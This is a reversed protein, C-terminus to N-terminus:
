SVYLSIQRVKEIYVASAASVALQDRVVEIWLRTVVLFQTVFKRVRKVKRNPFLETSTAQKFCIQSQRCRYRQPLIALWNYISSGWEEATYKSQPSSPPALVLQHPWRTDWSPLHPCNASDFILPLPAPAASGRTRLATMIVSKIWATALFLFSSFQLICNFEQTIKSHRRTHEAVWLCSIIYHM